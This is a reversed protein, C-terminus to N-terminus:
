DPRRAVVFFLAGLPDRLVALRGAGTDHAQACVEGGLGDALAAAAECDATAFYPMWHSPTDGWSAGMQVMGAVPVGDVSCSIFSEEGSQM